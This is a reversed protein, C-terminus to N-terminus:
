PFRAYDRRFCPAGRTVARGEVSIEKGITITGISKHVNEGADVEDVDTVVVTYRLVVILTCGLEVTSRVFTTQKYGSDM